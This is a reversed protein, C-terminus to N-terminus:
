DVVSAKTIGNCEAEGSSLAVVGQTSSWTKITHKVRMGGWDNDIFIDIHKTADQFDFRIKLRPKAKLYRGVRKLKQLSVGTPASMDWCLEKVCYQLDARDSVM